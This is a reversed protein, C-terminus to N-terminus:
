TNLLILSRITYDSVTDSHALIPQRNITLGQYHLLSYM